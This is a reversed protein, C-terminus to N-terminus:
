DLYTEDIIWFWVLAKLFPFLHKPPLYLPELCPRLDLWVVRVVDFPLVMEHLSAIPVLVMMTFM